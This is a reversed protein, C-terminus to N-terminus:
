RRNLDPLLSRTHPNSPRQSCDTESFVVNDPLGAYHGTGVVYTPDATVVEVDFNLKCDAGDIIAVYAYDVGSDTWAEFHVFSRNVARSGPWGRTLGNAYVVIGTSYAGAGAICTATFALHEGAATVIALDVDGGIIPKDSSKRPMDVTARASWRVTASTDPLAVGHIDTYHLVAATGTGFAAADVTGPYVSHVIQPTCSRGRGRALAVSADTGPLLGLPALVLSALSVLTAFLVVRM